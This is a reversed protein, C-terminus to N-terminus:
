IDPALYIREDLEARERRRPRTNSGCRVLPDAVGDGLDPQAAAM